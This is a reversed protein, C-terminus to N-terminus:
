IPSILVTGCTQGTSSSGADLGDANLDAGRVSVSAIEQTSRALQTSGAVGAFCAYSDAETSATSGTGDGKATINNLIRALELVM